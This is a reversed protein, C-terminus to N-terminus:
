SNGLWKKLMDKIAVYQLKYVMSKEIHTSSLHDIKM